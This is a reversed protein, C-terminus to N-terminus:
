FKVTVKDGANKAGMLDVVTAVGSATDASVNVASGDDDTCLKVKAGIVVSESPENFVTEFLMDPSIPYCLVKDEGNVANQAAIYTPSTTATCNAVTGGSLILASGMKVDLDPSKPLKVSEPVNTGSNLIKILKFM